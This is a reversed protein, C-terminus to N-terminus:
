HFVLFTIKVFKLELTYYGLGCNSDSDSWSLCADNNNCQSADDLTVGCFYNKCFQFGYFLKGVSCDYDSGSPM